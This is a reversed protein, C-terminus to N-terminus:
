QNESNVLVENSPIFSRVGKTELFQAINQISDLNEPLIEEDEVRVSFTKELYRILEFVGRSDTIGEEILSIDDKLGEANGYLFTEVIFKKIKDKTDNM